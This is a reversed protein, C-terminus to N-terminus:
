QSVLRVYRLYHRNGQYDNGNKFLVNWVKDTGAVLSASWFVDVPTNPFVDQDLTPYSAGEPCPELEEKGWYNLKAQNDCRVLTRLETISPLRWNKGHLRQRLTKASDWNMKQAEGKCTEGNWRQGTACRMWLLGTNKDLVLGHDKLQYRKLAKEKKFSSSTSIHKSLVPYYHNAAHIYSNKLSLGTTNIGVEIFVPHTKQSSFAQKAADPPINIYPAQYDIHPFLHKIATGWSLQLRLRSSDPDYDIMNANGAQYYDLKAQEAVTEREGKGWWGGLWQKTSHWTSDFFGQQGIVLNLKKELAQWAKKQESAFEESTQFQGRQQAKIRKLEDEVELWVTSSDKVLNPKPTPNQAMLRRYEKMLTNIDTNSAQSTCSFLGLALVFVTKLM